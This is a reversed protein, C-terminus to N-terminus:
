WDARVDVYHRAKETEGVDIVRVKKGSSLM